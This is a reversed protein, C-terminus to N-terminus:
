TGCFTRYQGESALPPSAYTLSEEAPDFPTSLAKLLENLPGLDARETAAELAELSETSTLLPTNGIIKQEYRNGSKVFVPSLVANLPGDWIKTIGNILYERQEIPKSLKVSSPISSEDPFINELYNTMHTNSSRDLLKM